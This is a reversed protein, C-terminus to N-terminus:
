AVPARANPVNRLIPDREAVSPGPHTPLTAWHPAVHGPAPARRYSRSIYCAVDRAAHPRHDLVRCPAVHRFRSVVSFAPTQLLPAQNLAPTVRGALPPHGKHDRQRAEPVLPVCTLWACRASAKHILARLRTGLSRRRPRMSAWGMVKHKARNRADLALSRGCRAVIWM